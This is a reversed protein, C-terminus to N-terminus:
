KQKVPTPSAVPMQGVVTDGERLVVRPRFEYRDPGKSGTVTGDRVGFEAQMNGRNLWLKVEDTPRHVLSIFSESADELTIMQFDAGRQAIVIRPFNNKPGFLALQSSADKDAVGMVIRPQGTADILGFQIGSETMGIAARPRGAGDTVVLSRVVLKGDAPSTTQASLFGGSALGGAALAALATWVVRERIRARRATTELAAIRAALEHHDRESEDM